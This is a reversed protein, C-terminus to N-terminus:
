CLGFAEELDLLWTIIHYVFDFGGDNCDVLLDLGESLMRWIQAELM